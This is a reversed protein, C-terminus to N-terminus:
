ATAMGTAKIWSHIEPLSYTNTARIHSTGSRRMSRAIVTDLFRSSPHVSLLQRLRVWCVAAQGSVMGSQGTFEFLKITMRKPAAGPLSDGRRDSRLWPCSTRTPDGTEDEPLLAAQTEPFPNLSVGVARVTVGRSVQRRDPTRRGAPVAANARVYWWHRPDSPKRCTRAYRGASITWSTPSRAHVIPRPRTPGISCSPTSGMVPGILGTFM